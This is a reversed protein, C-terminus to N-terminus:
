LRSIVNEGVLIPKLKNDKNRVYTIDGFVNEYHYFELPYSSIIMESDEITDWIDSDFYIYGDHDVIQVKNGESIMNVFNETGLNNVLLQGYCYHKGKAKIFKRKCINGFPCDPRCDDMSWMDGAWYKKGLKEYVLIFLREGESTFLSYGFDSPEPQNKIRERKEKSTTLLNNGLYEDLVEEIFKNRAEEDKYILHRYKELM